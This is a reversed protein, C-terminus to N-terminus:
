SLRPPPRAGRVDMSSSRIKLVNSFFQPPHEDRVLPLFEGIHVERLRFRTSKSPNTPSKKAGTSIEISALGAIKMSSDALKHPASKRPRAHSIQILFYCFLVEVALEGVAVHGLASPMACIVVASGESDRSM